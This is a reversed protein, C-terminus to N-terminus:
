FADGNPPTKRGGAWSPPTLREETPMQRGEPIAMDPKSVGPNSGSSGPKARASM